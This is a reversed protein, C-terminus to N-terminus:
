NLSARIGDVVMGFLVSKVVDGAMGADTEIATAAQLAEEVSGKSLMMKAVQAVEEALEEVWSEM